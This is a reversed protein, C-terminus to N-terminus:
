RARLAVCEVSLFPSLFFRLSENLFSPDGESGAVVCGWYLSFCLFLDTVCLSDRDHVSLGLREMVENSNRVGGLASTSNASTRNPESGLGSCGYFFFM